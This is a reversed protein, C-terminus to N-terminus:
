CSLAFACLFARLSNGEKNLTKKETTRQAKAGKRQTKIRSNKDFFAVNKVRRGKFAAGM